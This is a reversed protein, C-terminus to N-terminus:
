SRYRFCQTAPQRQGLLQRYAAELADVTERISFDAARAKAAQSMGAAEGDAFAAAARRIADALGRATPESTIFGSLGDEVIEPMGGKRNVIAPLGFCM